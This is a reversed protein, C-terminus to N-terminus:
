KKNKYKQYDYNSLINIPLNTSPLLAYNQNKLTEYFTIFQERTKENKFNNALNYISEQMDVPLYRKGNKYEYIRRNDNESFFYYLYKYILDEINLISLDYTWMNSLSSNYPTKYDRSIMPFQPYNIIFEEWDLIKQALEHHSGRISGEVM